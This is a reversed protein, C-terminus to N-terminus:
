SLELIAAIDKDSLVDGFVKRLTLADFKAPPLQPVFEKREFQKKVKKRKKKAKKEKEAQRRKEDDDDHASSMFKEMKDDDSSMADIDGDLAQREVEKKKREEERGM